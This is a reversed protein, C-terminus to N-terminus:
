RWEQLQAVLTSEEGDRLIRLTVEDGVDHLDIIRALQQITSVAVGDIALIVDGGALLAGGDRRSAPRLGALDAASGPGVGTVYVGREATVGADAANVDNLTRGNIGLQAHLVTEGAIMQPLFRTAINSPVAFAVGIFVRQGTPNVISTAIGIVEGRANFVPGGSNGPNLAADVQLVGRIPRGTLGTRERDLGSIIGASVSFDLNFPTGIAFIPEGVRVADSDGFVAPTLREAPLSVQLVALDSAPDIGVVTAVAITGDALTVSISSAGQVVHYNTLLHGEDDIVVASGAGEQGFSGAVNTEVRAVSSLVQDVLDPLNEIAFAASGPVVRTSAGSTASVPITAETAAAVATPTAGAAQPADSNGM